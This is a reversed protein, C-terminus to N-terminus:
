DHTSRVLIRNAVRAISILRDAEDRIETHVTPVAICPRPGHGHDEDVVAIHSRQTRLAWWTFGAAPTPKAAHIQTRPSPHLPRPSRQTGHLIGASQRVMM